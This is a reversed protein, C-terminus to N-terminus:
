SVLFQSRAFCNIWYCFQFAFRFRFYSLFQVRLSNMLYNWWGWIGFRRIEKVFIQESKKKLQCVSLFNTWSRLSFKHSFNTFCIPSCLQHIRDREGWVFLWYSDQIKAVCNQKSVKYTFIPLSFTKFYSWFVDFFAM